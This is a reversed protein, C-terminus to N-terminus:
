KKNFRVIKNRSIPKEQDADAKQNKYVPLTFSFTTGKGKGESYFTIEGFNGEVIKKAIFLGLGSGDPRQDTAKKGRSFKQFIKETDEGFIGVGTDKVNVKLYDGALEYFVTVQGKPTYYVANDLLNSIVHAIKKYDCWVVPVKFKPKEVAIDIGKTQAAQMKQKELILRGVIETIDTKQPQIKMREGELQYADWFDAVTANIRELGAKISPIAKEAPYSGEGMMSFYGNMVSLPTNLQHNVVRLFDGKMELLEKLYKNKEEIQGSKETIDKTQEDVKGQLTKSFDQVEKYLRANDIATGAQNTLTNLLELDEKTYADNSIKAGLVIIGILKDGSILPLCLSAEIHEMHKYLRNFSDKEQRNRSDRALLLLEDRVLPKQTKHLYKTLFNDQVLSIGNQENFGVVKAIQFHVPNKNQNILLVGARDLQMTKKITEVILNIIKNLDNYHNLEQSLRNITEQYNYLSVFFYKYAIVKLGRSIGYFAAVFIPAIIIGALYGTSTFVGGLFNIYVWAVLYFITYTFAAVGIYIFIKRAVVRLDMLRYKFIAYAVIFPSFSITINLIPYVDIKYVPLFAFAGGSFGIFTAIFIYKIQIKKIGQNNKYFKFLRVHCYIVLTFFLFIFPTYLLAPPSIYYFQNFVWRVKNIFLDTFLDVSLFFFGLFYIIWILRRRTIDLFKNVFHTFLVPIFIVGIYAIKWWFVAKDPDLTTAIKYGGFGWLAVSFCFLAWIYHLGKRGKVITFIGLIFSPIGILLGSLAFINM